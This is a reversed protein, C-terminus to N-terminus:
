LAGDNGQGDDGPEDQLVEAMTRLIGATLGWIHFRGYPAAFMNYKVGKHEREETVHNSLDAVFDLPVEFVEHVERPCARIDTQPHVIGVVPTVSFGLGGEHVGLQGIVEVSGPEINVEEHAERLATEVRSADGPEVKGGPFSIQGAHSPMDSSRVTLLITAGEPRNIIPVLVAADKRIDSWRSEFMKDGVLHPNIERFLARVRQASMRDLNSAIRARWDVDEIRLKGRAVSM